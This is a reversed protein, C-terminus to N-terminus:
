NVNKDGKHTLFIESHNQLYEEYNDQITVEWNDSIGMDYCLWMKEILADEFERTWHQEPFENKLALLEQELSNM